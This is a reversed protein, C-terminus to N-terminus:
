KSGTVTPAPPQAPLTGAPIYVFKWDSYHEAGELNEFGSKFNTRQLPSTKSMSYVGVIRGEPGTVLGWESKGTIPDAYPQRLYRQVNPFRQDLLLDDITRPYQKAGQSHEYYDSIARRYQEGVFLLQRERERKKQTSWMTGVGALAISLLAIFILLGIYTFGYCERSAPRMARIRASKVLIM